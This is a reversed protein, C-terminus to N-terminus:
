RNRPMANVVLFACTSLWAITGVSAWITSINHDATVWLAFAVFPIFSLAIIIWRWGQQQQMHAWMESHREYWSNRGLPGTGNSRARSGNEDGITHQLEPNV